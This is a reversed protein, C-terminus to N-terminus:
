YAQVDNVLEVKMATGGPPRSATGNFNQVVSQGLNYSRTTEPLTVEDFTFTLSSGDAPDFFQYLIPVRDGAEASGALNPDYYRANLTVGATVSGARPTSIAGADPDAPCTLTRETILGNDYSIQGGEVVGCICDNNLLIGGQLHSFREVAAAVTHGAVPDAELARENVGIGTFTVQAAGSTQLAFQMGGYRIDSVAKFRPGTSLDTQDSVLSVLPLDKQGSLFTHRRLGGGKLTPASVYGGASGADLTITNGGAGAAKATVILRHGNALYTSASVKTDGSANLATALAIITAALTAGIKTKGASAAGSVFQWDFGNVSITEGDAPQRKFMFFGTAKAAASTPPGLLAGLHFGIHRKDLFTTISQPADIASKIPASEERGSRLTRINEWSVNRGIDATTADVDWYVPAAPAVAKPIEGTAGQYALYLRANDATVTKSAITQM